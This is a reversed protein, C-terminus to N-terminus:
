LPLAEAISGVQAVQATVRKNLLAWLGFMVLIAGAVFQAMRIMNHYSFVSGIRDSITGVANIPNLNGISGLIDTPNWGTRISSENAAMYTGDRSGIPEIHWNEWSMPFWLGYDAAVAHVENITADNDWGLDAAMGMTHKSGTPSGVMVGSKDSAEWLATQEDVSRYGNNIWVRGGFAALLADLRSGFPESLGDSRVPVSVVSEGGGGVRAAAATAEDLHSVYAGNWYTTWPNWNGGGGSIEYM